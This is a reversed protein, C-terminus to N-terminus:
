RAKSVARELHWPQAMVSGGSRSVSVPVSLSRRSEAEVSPNKCFEFNYSTPSWKKFKPCTIPTVQNEVGMRAVRYAAMTFVVRAGSSYALTAIGGNWKVGSWNVESWMVETDQHSRSWRRGLWAQPVQLNCSHRVATSSARLTRGGMGQGKEGPVPPLPSLLPM